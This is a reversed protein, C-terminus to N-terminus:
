VEKKQALDEMAKKQIMGTVLVIGGCVATVTVAMTVGVTSMEHVMQAMDGPNSAATLFPAWPTVEGHWIHEFALLASGGWLLNNLWKMKHSFSVKEVVPETDQSPSEMAQEKEKAEVAKTLVSTVIAEAAPVLFCAM